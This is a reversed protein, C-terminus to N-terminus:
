KIKYIICKNRTKKNKSNTCLIFSLLMGDFLSWVAPYLMNHIYFLNIVKQTTESSYINLINILKIKEEWKLNGWFENRYEM